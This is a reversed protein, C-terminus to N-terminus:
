KVTELTSLAPTYAVFVNHGPRAECLFTGTRPVRKVPQGLVRLGTDLHREGLAHVGLRSGAVVSTRAEIDALHPWRARLADVFPDVMADALRYADFWGKRRAPHLRLWGPLVRPSRAAAIAPM